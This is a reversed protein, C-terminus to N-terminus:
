KELLALCEVHHTMGFADFVRLDALQYGHEGFTALDRALSAPDCAVYVVQRPGAAAIATVVARGAGKRPPDLVVVAPRPQVDLVAPKVAAQVWTLQGLDALCRQGDRVARRNSEVAVVVGDQGVKSALVSAFLGSGAYLDWAVGGRDPEAWADIVQAYADAAASHGQWFGHADVKWTRGAALQVAVGGTVQRRRKGAVTAVHVTGRDDMAIEIETGPRYSRRQVAELMGPAAILCGSEPLPVVDHSRHARFGARGDDDVALRTRSRWGTLPLQEVTIQRDIGALRRLQEAVVAAKLRRQTAADAHQWDCGGCGGPGAVPCPPTVRGDAPRLIRIADARCFAGGGDETVRAIVRESPLAHRVFVVRGEYRAVCHGGHAVATVDVDLERGCWSESVM